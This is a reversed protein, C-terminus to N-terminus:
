YYRRAFENYFADTESRCIDQEAFEALEKKMAEYKMMHDNEDAFVTHVFEGYVGCTIAYYEETKELTICIRGDYEEDFLIVGGELGLEGITKGEDLVNWKM